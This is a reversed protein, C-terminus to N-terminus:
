SSGGAMRRCSSRARWRPREIPPKRALVSRILHGLMTKVELMAFHRGLCHKAGGGWPLWTRSQAAAGIFREPRFTHPKPYLDPQHHM